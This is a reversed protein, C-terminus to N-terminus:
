KWDEVEKSEYDMNRPNDFIVVYLKGNDMHAQVQWKGDTLRYLYIGYDENSAVLTNTEPFEPVAALEEWTVALQMHATDADIVWYIHLGDPMPYVVFPAAADRYNVRGDTFIDVPQPADVLNDCSGTELYLNDSPSTPDDATLYGWLRATIPNAQPSRGYNLAINYPGGVSDTAGSLTQNALVNGFGDTVTLLLIATNGDGTNNGFEISDATFATTDCSIVFDPNTLTTGCASIIFVLLIVSFMTILRNM